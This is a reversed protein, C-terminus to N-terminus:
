AQTEIFSTTSVIMNRLNPHFIKGTAQTLYSVFQFFVFIRIDGMNQLFCLKLAVPFYVFSCHVSNWICSDGSTESAHKTQKALTCACIELSQASINWENTLSCTVQPRRRQSSLWYLDVRRSPVDMDQIVENSVMQAEAPQPRIKLDCTAHLSKSHSHTSSHPPAMLNQLCVCRFSQGKNNYTTNNVVSALFQCKRWDYSDRKFIYM